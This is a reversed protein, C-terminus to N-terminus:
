IIRNKKLKRIHGKITSPQLGRKKAIQKASLGRKYLKHTKTYTKHMESLSKKKPKKSSKKSHKRYYKKSRKKHSTFLLRLFPTETLIFHIVGTKRKKKTKFLSKFVSGGRSYDKDLRLLFVGLLFLFGLAGFFAEM